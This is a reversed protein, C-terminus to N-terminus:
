GLICAAHTTDKFPMILGTSCISRAKHRNKQFLALISQLVLGMHMYNHDHNFVFTLDIVHQSTRSVSLDELDFEWPVKNEASSMHSNEGFQFFDRVLFPSCCFLLLNFSLFFYDPFVTKPFYGDHDFLVLRPTFYGQSYSSLIVYISAM